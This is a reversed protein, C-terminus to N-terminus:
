SEDGQILNLAAPSLPRGPVGPIAGPEDDEVLLALQDTVTDLRDSIAVLANIEAFKLAFRITERAKGAKRALRAGQPARTGDDDLAHMQAVVDNLYDITAKTSGLMDLAHDRPDFEDNTM